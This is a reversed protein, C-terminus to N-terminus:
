IRWPVFCSSWPIRKWRQQGQDARLQHLVSRRWCKWCLAICHARRPLPVRREAPEQPDPGHGADQRRQAVLPLWRLHHPGARLDQVLRQRQRGLKRRDQRQTGQGHLIPPHGPPLHLNRSHLRHNLRRLSRLHRPRPHRPFARLLPDPLIHGPPTLVTCPTLLYSLLMSLYSPVAYM